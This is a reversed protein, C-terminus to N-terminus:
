ANWLEEKATQRLWNLLCQACWECPIGDDTDLMGGCEPRNTCYMDGDLMRLLAAALEEDTMSRIRDANTKPKLAASLESLLERTRKIGELM